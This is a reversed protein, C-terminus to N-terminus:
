QKAEAAMQRHVRALTLYCRKAQQAGRVRSKCAAAIATWEATTGQDYDMYPEIQLKGRAGHDRRAGYLQQMRQHYGDKEKAAKAEQQYRAVLDEHESRTDARRDESEMGTKLTELHLASLDRFRGSLSTQALPKDLNNNCRAASVACNRPFRAAFSNM